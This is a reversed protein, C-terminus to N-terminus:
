QKAIPQILRISVMKSAEEIKFACQGFTPVAFFPIVNNSFGFAELPIKLKNQNCINDSNKDHYVSIAYKGKPIKVQKVMEENTVKFVLKKFEKNEKPFNEPISYIGVHLTGKLEKINTIKIQLSQTQAWGSLSLIFILFLTAFKTM